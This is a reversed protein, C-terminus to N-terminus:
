LWPGLRGPACRGDPDLRSRLARLLGTTTPPPGLADVVEDVGAPRDRLLVTGGAALVDRRWGEFARAQDAPPGTFKATHLGLASHSILQARVGAADAARALADAVAPLRSPVTGAFATSQDSAATRAASLEQWLRNEDSEVLTDVGAGADALMARLATTQAEVGARTGDFRVALRGDGAARSDDGIWDVAAPELPSALLELTTRAASQVSSPAVITASAEPRPHVRIVVEAILGLTGLSGYVLKSLDYGAVNKIVQGGARGVTGDALVLTVGIVLDRLAGYRLRRPGSDGTALLGGITAGAAESPPDLALWQGSEALLGQLNALPMGAEVTATMDAPNHTRLRNLQGTDLILDPEAVRGGWNLKTGSGRFLVPGRSDQLAKAADDV